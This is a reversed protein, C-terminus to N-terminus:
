GIFVAGSMSLGNEFLPFFDAAVRHCAALDNLPSQPM